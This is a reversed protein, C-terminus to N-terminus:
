ADVKVLIFHKTKIFKNAPMHLQEGTLIGGLCISLGIDARPSFAVM